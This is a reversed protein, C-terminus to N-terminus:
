YASLPLLDLGNLEKLTKGFVMKWQEVRFVPSFPNINSAEGQLTELSKDWANNLKVLKEIDTRSITNAENINNEISGLLEYEYNTVEFVKQLFQSSVIQGGQPLDQLNMLQEKLIELGTRAKDLAPKNVSDAPEVSVKSIVISSAFNQVSNSWTTNLNKVNETHKYILVVNLILSVILIIYIIKKM